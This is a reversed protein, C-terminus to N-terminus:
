EHPVSRRARWRRHGWMYQEPYRRVVTEIERTLASLVRTVDSERDGTSRFELPGVARVTYRLPGTRVAYAFVLPARTVLHLLAISKHTWAPRGLFEIPVGHRGAYQDMMLALVRGERLPRMFRTPDDDHKHMLALRFGEAGREIWGRLFPNALPRVVATVPKLLSTARAVIEWNGLHASAALIGVDPDDVIRELEPSLEVTVFERWNAPTIRSRAIATEATMLVFSGFSARAIRRADRPSDAIGAALINEIAIRRRRFFLAFVIWTIATCLRITLGLPLIRLVGVGGAVLAYELWQRARTLRTGM